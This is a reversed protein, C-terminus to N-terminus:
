NPGTWSYSKTINQYINHSYCPTSIRCNDHQNNSYSRAENSCNNFNFNQLDHQLFSLFKDEPVKPMEPKQVGILCSYQILCLSLMYKYIHIMYIPIHSTHRTRIHTQSVITANNGIRSVFHITIKSYIALKMAHFIKQVHAMSWYSSYIDLCQPKRWLPSATM